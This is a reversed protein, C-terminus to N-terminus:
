ERERRGGRESSHVVEEEEDDREGDGEEAERLGSRL